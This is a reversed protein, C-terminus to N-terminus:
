SHSGAKPPPPQPPPAPVQKPAPAFQEPAAGHPFGPLQGAKAEVHPISAQQAAKPAAPPFGSHQGAKPAIHPSGSHQGAKPAIHPSGLHQGAEPASSSSSSQSEEGHSPQGAKPASSPQAKAKAKPKAKARVNRGPREALARKRKDSRDLAYRHMRRKKMSEQIEKLDGKDKEDLEGFATEFMPDDALLDVANPTTKDDSANVTTVFENDGVEAALGSILDRRSSRHNLDNIPVRSAIHALDQHSFQSPQQLAAKLIPEPEGAVEFVIGRASRYWRTPTVEWQDLRVAFCWSAQVGANTVFAYQVKDAEYGLDGAQLKVLPWTLAAWTYVGLSVMVNDNGGTRNIVFGRLLLCSLRASDLNLRNAVNPNGPQVEQLWAWAAAGKRFENETTTLWKKPGMIRSFKNNLKHRWAWHKKRASKGYFHRRDQILMYSAYTDVHFNCMLLVCQLAFLMSM